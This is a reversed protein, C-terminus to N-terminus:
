EVVGMSALKKTLLFSKIEPNEELLAVGKGSGLSNWGVGLMCLNMTAAFWSLRM